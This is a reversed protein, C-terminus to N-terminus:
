SFNLIWFNRLNNKMNNVVKVIKTTITVVIEKWNFFVSDHCECDQVLLRRGRARDDM